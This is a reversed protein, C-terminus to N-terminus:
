QSRILAKRFCKRLSALWNKDVIVDDDLFAVIEGRSEAVGRNRACCLGQRREFIYRAGPRAKFEEVVQPTDDSSNNDIVLLEHDVAGLCTQEFFSTLTKQLYSARNYTCVIVSIM